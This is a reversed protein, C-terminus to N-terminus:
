RQAGGGKFVLMGQEVTLEQKSKFGELLEKLKKKGEKTQLWVCGNLHSVGAHVFQFQAALM